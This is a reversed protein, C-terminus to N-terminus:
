IGPALSVTQIPASPGLKAFIEIWQGRREMRVVPQLGLEQRIDDATIQPEYYYYRSLLRSVLRLRLVNVGSDWTKSFVVLVDPDKEKLALVNKRHFDDIGIANFPQSIYGFEPRRIADVFPWSTAVTRKPYSTELFRAADEHLRVFDVLALNNEFPYPWPPNWFNAGALGALLVVLIPRSARVPIASLAAAFAIYVIPLVPLLYRELAAGGFATVLFIHAAIFIALGAWVGERFLRTTRWAWFLAIVGVVHLNDVFLYFLRRALTVPLRVPHLQFWINYHEFGRDGLMTGTKARLYLLWLGLAGLPLLFLSAGKWDRNRVRDLAILAPLLIGTEKTLVLAMSFMVALFLKERLYLWIVVVTFLAAPMDLQALMSQAFMLPSILLLAAAVFAPAGRLPVKSRRYVEIALLFTFFVLAAAILLMALRTVILTHGFVAWVLALYAMVGPPHINPTATVPVWANRQLIDLAAPIFQGLEDWYYPLNLYPVHLAVVLVVAAAFFILYAQTQQKQGAKLEVQSPLM